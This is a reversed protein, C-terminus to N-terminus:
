RKETIEQDRDIHQEINDYYLRNLAIILKSLTEEKSPLHRKEVRSITAVSVGAEQALTAKSIGADVRFKRLQRM